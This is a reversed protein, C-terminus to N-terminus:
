VLIGQDDLYNKTNIAEELNPFKNANGLEDTEVLILFGPSGSLVSDFLSAIIEQKHDFLSNTQEVFVCM